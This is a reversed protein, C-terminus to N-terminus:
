APKIDKDVAMYESFAEVDNESTITVDDPHKTHVERGMVIGSKKNLRTIVFESISNEFNFRLLQGKSLKKIGEKTFIDSLDELKTSVTSM